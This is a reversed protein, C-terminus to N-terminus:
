DGTKPSYARGTPRFLPTSGPTVDVKVWGMFPSGFTEVRTFNGVASGDKPDRLPTDIRHVHSDGHVLLVQGAFRRTEALLQTLLERYAHNGKGDGFDEIDPNAQMVLVVGELGASRARAFGAEIWAKVAASRALYEAGPTKKRGYNNGSGPVNLTLFLVPGIQWRQHERYAAFAADDAQSEVAMPYQGHTKRPNAFFVGRLKELREQPDYAGNSTRHCDTWDNDGPVYVFPHHSSGFLALRDEYIADDCREGGNKIDGDHIVVKLREADMEAIVAPLHTREFRNYPTDGLVGFSFPEAAHAALASLSAILALTARRLAPM